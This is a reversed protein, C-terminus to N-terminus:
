KLDSQKPLRNGSRERNGRNDECEDCDWVADYGVLKAVWGMRELEKSSKFEERGCRACRQVIPGDRRAM